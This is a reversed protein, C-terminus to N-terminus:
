RLKGLDEKTIHEFYAPKYKLLKVSSYVNIKFEYKSNYSQSWEVDESEGWSLKENLPIEQMIYRKCVFYAGSFYQYKSLHTVEYPLMYTNVGHPRVWPPYTTWDRFRTGDTNVMPNMCALFDNGYKLFGAYWGHNLSIYDHMYVVNDFKAQETVINKKRTIWAQKLSEDFPIVRVNKGSVRSNGVVIVEYSDDPIDERHITSIVTNVFGENNGDTIIGFTFKM